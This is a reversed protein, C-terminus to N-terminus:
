RSVSRMAASPAVSPARRRLSAVGGRAGRQAELVQRRRDAAVPRGSRARQRSDRRARRRHRGARWADLADAVGRLARAQAGFEAAPKSIVFVPLGAPHDPREVFPLRAIIKPAGDGVLRLWWAGDGSGGASRLVGLDGKSADGRRHGGARRSAARLARHLRFSVARQRADARRRRFRRRARCLPGARSHLDLRHHALHGRGRRAAAPGRHREVLARMMRAERDPRFACGGGQARKIEILRDIIEGRQMLLRHM